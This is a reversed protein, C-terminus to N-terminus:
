IPIAAAGPSAEQSEVLRCSQSADWHNHLASSTWTSNMMSSGYWRIVRLCLLSTQLEGPKIERRQQISEM